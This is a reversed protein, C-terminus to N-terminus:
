RIKDQLSVVLTKEKELQQNLQKNKNEYEVLKEDQIKKVLTLLLFAM